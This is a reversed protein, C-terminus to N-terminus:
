HSWAGGRGVRGATREGGEHDAKTKESATTIIGAQDVVAPEMGLELNIMKWTASSTVPAVPLSSYHRLDFEAWSRSCWGFECRLHHPYATGGRHPDHM